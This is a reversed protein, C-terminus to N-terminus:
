NNAKVGLRVVPHTKTNRQGQPLFGIIEQFIDRAGVISLRYMCRFVEESVEFPNSADRGRLTRLPYRHRRFPFKINEKNLIYM